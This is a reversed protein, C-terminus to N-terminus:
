DALLANIDVKIGAQSIEKALRFKWAGGADMSVYL